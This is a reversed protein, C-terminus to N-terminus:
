EDGDYDRDYDHHYYGYHHHRHHRAIYVREVFLPRRYFYAPGRYYPRPTGVVVLGTVFPQPVGFGVVVAVRTQAGAPRAALLLALGVALILPKM